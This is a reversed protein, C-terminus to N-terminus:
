GDPWRFGNIDRVGSVVAYADYAFLRITGTDNFRDRSVSCCTKLIAWARLSTEIIRLAHRHIAAASHKNRIGAVIANSADRRVARDGGNGTVARNPISVACARLSAEVARLTNRQVM